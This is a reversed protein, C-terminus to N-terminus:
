KPCIWLLGAQGRCDMSAVTFRESVYSLKYSWNGSDGSYRHFLLIAPHPHTSIIPQLLKANVRAGGVGTFYLHFFTSNGVKFEAPKLEVQPDAARMEALCKEWFTDFDQTIPNRGHYSPLQDFQLDFFLPM